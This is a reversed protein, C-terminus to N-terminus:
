KGQASAPYTVFMGNAYIIDCDPNPTEGPTVDAADEALGDKGRSRIAYEKTAAGTGLAFDFPNGWGDATPFNHTYTPVLRDHLEAATVVVGPYAYGATAYSQMESARTEWATAIVRMDNVTRKQRARDVAMLYNIMAIGAIIAIIAVVILIEILTFGSERQSRSRSM